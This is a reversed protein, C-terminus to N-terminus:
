LHRDRKQEKKGPPPTFEIGTFFRALPCECDPCRHEAACERRTQDLLVVERCRPCYEFPSDFM